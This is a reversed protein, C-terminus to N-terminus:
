GFKMSLVIIILRGTWVNSLIGCAAPQKDIMGSIDGCLNPDIKPPRGPKARTACPTM